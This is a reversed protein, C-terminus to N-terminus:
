RVSRVHCFFEGRLVEEVALEAQELEVPAHQRLGLVRRHRQELPQPEQADDAAVQVLEELDADGAQLLLDFSPADRRPGSPRSAACISLRRYAAGRVLEDGRWYWSSM